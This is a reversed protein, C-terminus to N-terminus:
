SLFKLFNDRITGQQSEEPNEDVRGNNQEDNGQDNPVFRVREMIIKKIRQEAIPEANDRKDDSGELETAFGFELAEEPTLFKEEKMLKDLEDASLNCKSLYLKKSEETIKDLNEAETRLEDANGCIMSWANHFLFNCYKSAIRRDGAMFITAAASCAFGENYTTVKAPHKELANVIAMAESCEGGYSNIHVEIETVDRLSMLETVIDYSSVDSSFIPESTIDGYIWLAAITENQTLSYFKKIM